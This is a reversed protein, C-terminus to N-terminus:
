GSPQRWSALVEVVAANVEPDRRYSRMGSLGMLNPKALNAWPWNTKALLRIAMARETPEDHTKVDEKLVGFVESATARSPSLASLSPDAFLSPFISIAMALKDGCLLMWVEDAIGALRDAAFRLSSALADSTEAAAVVAFVAGELDKETWPAVGAQVAQSAWEWAQVDMAKVAGLVKLRASAAAGEFMDQILVLARNRTEASIDPNVLGDVLDNEIEALGAAKTEPELAASVRAMADIGAATDERFLAVLWRCAVRTSFQGYAPEVVLAEVRARGPYIFISDFSDSEVGEPSGDLWTRWLIFVEDQEDAGLRSYVDGVPLNILTLALIRQAESHTPLEVLSQVVTQTQKYFVEDEISASLQVSLAAAAAQLRKTGSAVLVRTVEASNGTSVLRGFDDASVGRDDGFGSDAALYLFPELAGVTLVSNEFFRPTEYLFLRVFREQRETLNDANAKIWDEPPEPQQRDIAVELRELLRPDRLLAEFLPICHEQLMLIRIVLLPHDRLDTLQSTDAGAKRSGALQVDIAEMTFLFEDIFRSVARMNREFYTRLYRAFIDASNEDMFRLLAGRKDGMLGQLFREFEPAVPLPLRWYVNFVKKLFRRGEDLQQPPRGDPLLERGLIRELVTHDGAVVFSLESQDFFTRLSDLVDRAMGASVRDLDDVFVIIRRANRERRDALLSRLIGDFGDTTAVSRSIAQSVLSRVVAALLIPIGVLTILTRYAVIAERWDSPLVRYAFYILVVLLLVASLALLDVRQRSSDVELREARTPQGRLLLGIDHLKGRWNRHKHIARLLSRMFAARDSGHKWPNLWVVDCGPVLVTELSRLFHTKGEGWKASIGFVFSEDPHSAHERLITRKVQQVFADRSELTRDSLEPV